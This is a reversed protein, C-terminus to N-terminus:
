LYRLTFETKHDENLFKFIAGTYGLHADYIIGEVLAYECYGFMNHCYIIMEGFPISDYSGDEFNILIENM